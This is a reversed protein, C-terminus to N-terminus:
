DRRRRRARELMVLGGAFLAMTAPEPVQTPKPKGSISPRQHSWSGALAPQAAVIAVVAACIKASRIM